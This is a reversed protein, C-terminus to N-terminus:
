LGKDYVAMTDGRGTAPLGLAQRLQDRVRLMEELSHYSVKHTGGADSFEVTRAGRYIARELAELETVTAM